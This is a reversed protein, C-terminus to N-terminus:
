HTGKVDQGAACQIKIAVGIPLDSPQGQGRVGPGLGVQGPTIGWNEDRWRANIAMEAERSAAEILPDNGSTNVILGGV